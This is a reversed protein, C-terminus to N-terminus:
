EALVAHKILSQGTSPGPLSLQVGALLQENGLVFVTYQGFAINAQGLIYGTANPAYVLGALSLQASANLYVPNANSPDQYYLVGAYNGTTPPSILVASGNLGVPGASPSVYMTVGDGTLVGTNNVPGTFVYLGPEMTVIGVDNEFDSYCGPYVTVPLVSANVFSQCGSAAPPNGALYACGTIEPCPDAVPLMQKPGAGLFISLLNEQLTHAYGFGKVDIVSAMTDVTASNAYIACNPSLIVDGNLDLTASQNLLYMCGPNDYTVIAVAETTETAGQSFGFMRSFFAPIGQTTIKVRVACSNGEYPGASPPNEVTITEGSNATFGNATADTLAGQQAVASNPCNTYALQQAGGISAADTANQQLHGFYQWYGVDVALGSFGMVAALSLALLPLIQGRSVPAAIVGRM